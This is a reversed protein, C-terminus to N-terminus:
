GGAAAAFRTRIRKPYEGTFYVAGTLAAVNAALPLVPPLNPVWAVCGSAIAEVIFALAWVASINRNVTFFLPHSQREPPVQERAYQLTFPRGILISGLTIAVLGLDVALRVEFVSWDPRVFSAVAALAVFLVAAGVELVKVPSRTRQRSRVVVAVAIVAAAWLGVAVGVARALLFFAIFPALGFLISM